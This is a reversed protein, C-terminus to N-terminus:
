GSREATWKELMNILPQYLTDMFQAPGPMDPVFILLVALIGGLVTLAAFAIKERKKQTKMNPWEYLAMLMLVAAIGLVAAWKM